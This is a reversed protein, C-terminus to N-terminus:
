RSRVAAARNVEERARNLFGKPEPRRQLTVNSMQLRSSLDYFASAILKNERKINTLEQMAADKITTLM